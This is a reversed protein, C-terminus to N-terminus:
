YVRARGTSNLIMTKYEEIAGALELFDARTPVVRIASNSYEPPIQMGARDITAYESESLRAFPKRPMFPKFARFNTGAKEAESKIEEVDSGHVKTLKSLLVDVKVRAKVVNLDNPPAHLGLADIQPIITKATDALIKRDKEARSRYGMHTGAVAVTSMLATVAAPAAWLPATGSLINYVFGPVDGLISAATQGAAKLGAPGLGSSLAGIGFSISVADLGVIATAIGLAVTGTALLPIGYKIVGHDMTHYVWMSSDMEDVAKEIAVLNKGLQSEIKADITGPAKAITRPQMGAVFEKEAQAIKANIKQLEKAEKRAAEALRDKQRRLTRYM